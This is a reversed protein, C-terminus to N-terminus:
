HIWPLCLASLVAHICCQPALLPQIGVETIVEEPFGESGGSWTMGRTTLRMPGKTSRECVDSGLQFSIDVTNQPEKIGLDRGLSYVGSFALLPQRNWRQTEAGGEEQM